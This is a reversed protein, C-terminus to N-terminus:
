VGRSKTLPQGPCVKTDGAFASKIRSAKVAFGGDGDGPQAFLKPNGANGDDPGDALTSLQSQTLPEVCVVGNLISRPGNSLAHCIGFWQDLRKGPPYSSPVQATLGM